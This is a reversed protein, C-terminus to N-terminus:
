PKAGKATKEFSVINSGPFISMVRALTAAHEATIEKRDRGTYAPVLWVDGYTESHLLVEVGLARFSEIDDTTFGRLQDVDVAPQADADPKPALVIPAPPTSAKSTPPPSVEPLPNGFLDRAIPKPPMAVPAVEPRAELVPLARKGYGNVKAWETCLFEDALACTGGQQFHICRKSEGRTYKECTINPPRESAPTPPPPAPRLLDKLAM